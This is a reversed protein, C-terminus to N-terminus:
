AIKWYLAFLYSKPSEFSDSNMMMPSAAVFSHGKLTPLGYFIRGQRPESSGWKVLYVLPLYPLKKPGGVKIPWMKAAGQSICM